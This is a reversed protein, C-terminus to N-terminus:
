FEIYGFTTLQKSSRNADTIILAGKKFLTIGEWNYRFGEFSTVQRWQKDKYNKLTVIRAYTTHGNDLYKPNRNLSDALDPVLTKIREEQNNLIGNNLYSKYDGNWYYNIGYIQDTDTTAIDTIRFHLFPTKIQQPSKKFTPDILFGLGGDPMGNFEYYAILKKERPLYAVSEFGANEVRPYRRLPMYNKPDINIENKITDLKGKVLYCYYYTDTTEIAFYAQGNVITISEFGQYNQKIANPLKGINKVKITRYSTLESDKGDIVRSISDTSISYIDFEGNPKTEKHNGYQPAFYVRGKWLTIGSFEENVGNIAAPLPIIKINSQARSSISCVALLIFLLFYNKLRIILM